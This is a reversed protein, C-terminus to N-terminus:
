AQASAWKGASRKRGRSMKSFAQWQCGKKECFAEKFDLDEGNFNFLLPIM